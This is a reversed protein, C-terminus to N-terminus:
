PNPTEKSALGIHDCAQLLLCDLLARDRANRLGSFAMVTGPVVQQPNEIFADLTAENWSFNVSRFALSYQFGALHGARRGALGSLNPGVGGHESATRSHCASCKTWVRDLQAPDPLQARSVSAVFL